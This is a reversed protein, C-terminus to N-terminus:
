LNNALINKRCVRNCQNLRLYVEEERHAFTRLDSILIGCLSKLPDLYMISLDTIM